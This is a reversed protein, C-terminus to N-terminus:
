SKGVTRDYWNLNTKSAVDYVTILAVTDDVVDALERNVERLTKFSVVLPRVYDYSWPGYVFAITVVYRM